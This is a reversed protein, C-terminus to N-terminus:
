WSGSSISTDSSRSTSDPQVITFPASRVNTFEERSASSPPLSSPSRWSPRITPPSTVISCSRIAITEVCMGRTCVSSDVSILANTVAITSAWPALPEPQDAAM